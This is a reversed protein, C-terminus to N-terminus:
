RAFVVRTIKVIMPCPIPARRRWSPGRSAVCTPKICREAYRHGFGKYNDCYYMADRTTPGSANTHSIYSASTLDGGRGSYILVQGSIRLRGEDRAKLCIAIALSGGASDGGV